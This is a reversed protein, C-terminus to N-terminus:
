VWCWSWWWSSAESWGPQLWLPESSFVSRPAHTYLSCLSGFHYFCVYTRLFCCPQSACVQTASGKFGETKLYKGVLSWRSVFIGGHGRMLLPAWILFMSIIKLTFEWCWVSATVQFWSDWYNKQYARCFQWLQRDPYSGMKPKNSADFSANTTLADASHILSFLSSIWSQLSVRRYFSIVSLGTWPFHLASWRGWIAERAARPFDQHM